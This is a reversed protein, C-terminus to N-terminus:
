EYKKHRRECNNMEERDKENPYTVEGCSCEISVVNKTFGTLLTRGCKKCKLRKNFLSDGRVM